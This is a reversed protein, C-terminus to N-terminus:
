AHHKDNCNTWLCVAAVRPGGRHKARMQKFEPEKWDTAAGHDGQQQRRRPARPSSSATPTECKPRPNKLSCWLGFLCPGCMSSALLRVLRGRFPAATDGDRKHEPFADQRRCGCLCVFLFTPIPSLDPMEFGGYPTTEGTKEVSGRDTVLFRSARFLAHSFYARFETRWISDLANRTDRSGAEPVFVVALDPRGPGSSHLFTPRHYGPRGNRAERRVSLLCDVKSPNSQFLLFSLVGLGVSAYM